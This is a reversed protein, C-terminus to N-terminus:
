LAQNQDEGPLARGVSYPIWPVAVWRFRGEGNQEVFTLPPGARGGNGSSCALGLYILWLRLCIGAQQM